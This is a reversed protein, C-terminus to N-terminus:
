VNEVRTMCKNLLFTKPAAQSPPLAPRPDSASSEGRDAGHNWVQVPLDVGCFTESIYPTSDRPVGSPLLTTSANTPLVVGEPLVTQAGVCAMRVAVRMGAKLFTGM